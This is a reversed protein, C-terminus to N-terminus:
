SPNESGVLQVFLQQLSLGTVELTDPVQEREGLIATTKLGGVVSSGIVNKGSCYDDVDSIRGSVCYGQALLQESSEDILVKGHDLIIVNELLGEVESILHTSLLICSPSESYSEILLKYFLERHFADMGLTPEDLFLFPTHVSLSLVARLVSKYGTSLATYKKNLDLEFRKAYDLCQQKDFSPYIESMLQILKHANMEAFYSTETVLFIQHQAKENEWVNQEDLTISGETPQIYNTILRLLTTKGAGNRGLLGYIKPEDLCLNVGNLATTDGFKRTLNHCSLKM